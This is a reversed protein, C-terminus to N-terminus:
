RYIEQQLFSLHLKYLFEASDASLLYSYKDELFLLPSGQANCFGKVLMHGKGWRKMLMECSDTCEANSCECVSLCSLECAASPLALVWQNETGFCPSCGATAPVLSSVWM